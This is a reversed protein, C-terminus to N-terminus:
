LGRRTTMFLSAFLFFSVVMEIAAFVMAVWLGARGDTEGMAKKQKLGKVAYYFTLPGFLLGLFTVLCGFTATMGALGAYDRFRTRTSELTGDASLREFCSPCLTRGDIVTRCLSCMFTGCRECGAVAVNHAHTACPQQADLSGDVADPLKVDLPPPEFKIAEFTRACLPCQAEPSTTIAAVDIPKQCRPCANLAIDLIMVRSGAAMDHLCTKEKTFLAPIYDIITVLNLFLGRVFARIWSQRAAIRVGARQTVKIGLAMKGPTQGRWQLFAGEYLVPVILLGVTLWSSSTPRTFLAMIAPIGVATPFALSLPLQTIINDLFIAAFRRGVGALKIESGSVGSRIDAIQEAKCRACYRRGQFIVFCDACFTGECRSCPEVGEAITPHNACNM